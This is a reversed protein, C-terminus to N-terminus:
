KNFENIADKARTETLTASGQIGFQELVNMIGQCGDNYKIIASYTGIEITRKGVFTSKPVKSWILANLATNHKVKYVSQFYNM